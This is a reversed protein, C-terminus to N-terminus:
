LILFPLNRGFTPIKVPGSINIIGVFPALKVFYM